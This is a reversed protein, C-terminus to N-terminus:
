RLWYCIFVYIPVQTVWWRHKVGVQQNSKALSSQQLRSTHVRSIKKREVNNSPHHALGNKSLRNLLPSLIEPFYHVRSLPTGDHTSSYAFSYSSQLRRVPSPPSFLSKLALSAQVYLLLRGVGHSARLLRCLVDERGIKSNVDRSVFKVETKM